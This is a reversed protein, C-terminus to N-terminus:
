GNLSGIATSIITAPVVMAVSNWFFPEIGKCTGGVCFKSWALDWYELSFSHPLSILGNRSFDPLSRFSNVVVVALPVVYYLAFLGLLAYVVLKARDRRWTGATGLPDYGAEPV